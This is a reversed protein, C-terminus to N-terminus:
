PVKSYKMTMHIEYLSGKNEIFKITLTTTSPTTSIAYDFKQSGSKVFILKLENKKTSWRGYDNFSGPGPNFEGSRSFTGNSNATMSFYNNDDPTTTCSNTECPGDTLNVFNAVTEFWEWKGFLRPDLKKALFAQKELSVFGADGTNGIESAVPNLSSSTSDTCSFVFLLFVISICSLFIKKM